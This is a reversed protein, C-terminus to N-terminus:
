FNYRLRDGHPGYYIIQARKRPYGGGCGGKRIIYSGRCMLWAGRKGDIIQLRDLNLQNEVMAAGLNLAVSVDLRVENPVIKGLLAMFAKPEAEAQRVLYDVGGARQFALHLIEKMDKNIKGIAGQTRAM